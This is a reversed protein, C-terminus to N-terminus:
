GGPSKALCCGSLTLCFFCAVEALLNIWESYLVLPCLVTLRHISALWAEARWRPNNRDQRKQDKRGQDKWDKSSQLFKTRTETRAKPGTNITSFNGRLKSTMPEFFIFYTGTRTWSLDLFQSVRITSKRPLIGNQAMDWCFRSPNQKLIPWILAPGLLGFFGFKSLEPESWFGLGFLGLALWVM